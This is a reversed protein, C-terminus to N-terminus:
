RREFSVDIQITSAIAVGERNLAPYYKKSVQSLACQRAERGFGTGPDSLVRVHPWLDISEVEPPLLAQAHAPNWAAACVLAVLVLARCLMARV